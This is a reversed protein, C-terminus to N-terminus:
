STDVYRTYYKINKTDLALKIYINDYQQIFIDVITNSIPFGMAVGKNRSIYKTKLCLTIKHNYM